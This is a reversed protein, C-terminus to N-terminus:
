KQSLQIHPNIALLQNVFERQRVPSIILPMTSKLVKKDSFKIAIRHTLSVAPSSLISKTPRISSIKDIPYTRPIFFQYVVLNNGDIKYYIGLLGVVIIALFAVALIVPLVWDDVFVPWICVAVVFALMLWTSSDWMSNYRTGSYKM